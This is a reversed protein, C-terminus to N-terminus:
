EGYEGIDPARMDRRITILISTSSPGDTPPSPTSAWIACIYMPQTTSEAQPSAGGGLRPHGLAVWSRPPYLCSDVAFCGCSLMGPWCSTTSAHLIRTTPTQVHRASLDQNHLHQEFFAILRVNLATSGRMRIDEVDLGDELLPSKHLSTPWFFLSSTALHPSAPRSPSCPDLRILPRRRRWPCRMPADGYITKVEAVM